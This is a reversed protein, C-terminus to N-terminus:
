CRPAAARARPRTRIASSRMPGNSAGREDRGGELGFAGVIRARQAPVRAGAGTLPELRSRLDAMPTSDVLLLRCAVDCSGPHGARARSRRRDRRLRCDRGESRDPRARSSRAPAGPHSLRRHWRDRAQRLRSGGGPQKGSEALTVAQEFAAGAEAAQKAEWWEYGRWGGVGVVVLLCAAIVFIATASGCSRSSNAGYKRTSKM